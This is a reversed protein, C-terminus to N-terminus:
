SSLFVAAAASIGSGEGWSQWRGTCTPSQSAPIALVGNVGVPSNLPLATKPKPTSPPSFLGQWMAPLHLASTQRPLLHSDAGMKSLFLFYAFDLVDPQPCIHISIYIIVLRIKKLIQLMILLYMFACKVIPIFCNIVLM